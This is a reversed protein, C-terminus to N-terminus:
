PRTRMAAVDRSDPRAGGPIGPDAAGARLQRLRELGDHLVPSLAPCGAPVTITRDRYVEQIITRVKTATSTRRDDRALSAAEGRAQAAQLADITEVLTTNAAAVETLQASLMGKEAALREAEGAQWRNVGVSLALALGLAIVLYVSAGAGGTALGSILQLARGIM